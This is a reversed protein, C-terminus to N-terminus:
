KSMRGAAFGAGGIGVAGATGKLAASQASPMVPSRSLSERGARLSERVSGRLGGGFGMSADFTKKAAGGAQGINTALHRAGSALNGGFAKVAQIAGGMYAVKEKLEALVEDKDQNLSAAIKAAAEELGRAFGAAYSAKKQIGEYAVTRAPALSNAVPVGGGGGFM